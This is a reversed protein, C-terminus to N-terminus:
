KILWMTYTQEKEVFACKTNRRHLRYTPRSTFFQQQFLYSGTQRAHRIARVFTPLPPPPPRLVTNSQRRRNAKLSAAHSIELDALSYGYM